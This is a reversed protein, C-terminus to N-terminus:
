KAKKSFSYYKDDGVSVVGKETGKKNLTYLVAKLNGDQMGETINKKTGVCYLQPKAYLKVTKEGIVMKRFYLDAANMEDILKMYQQYKKEEKVKIVQGVKAETVTIGDFFTYYPLKKRKELVYGDRDLMIFQGDQKVVAVPTRVDLSVTVTDPLKRSVEAAIVYPREELAKECKKVDIEFLNLGPKLGTIEKVLEVSFRDNKELQINKVTFADSHMIFYVAVCVLIFVLFRLLYYKKRRKKRVRPKKRPKREPGSPATECVEEQGFETEFKIKDNDEYNM